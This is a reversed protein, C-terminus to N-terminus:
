RGGEVDDRMGAAEAALEDEDRTHLHAAFTRIADGEEEVIIKHQQQLADQVQDRLATLIEVERGRPLKMTLVHSDVNVSQREGAIQIDLVTCPKMGLPAYQCRDAGFLFGHVEGLDQDITM